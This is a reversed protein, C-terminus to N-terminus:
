LPLSSIAPFANTASLVLTAKEHSMYGKLLGKDILNALLCEIEARDAIAGAVEVVKEVVRIEIRSAKDLQLWVRRMLNRFCLSRCREITLYTGRLVLHQMTQTLVEDFRGLHGSLITDILVGYVAKLNPYKELLSHHPVRGALLRTPILYNLILARNKNIISMNSGTALCRKLAFSLEVDAKAYDENFFALVGLYYKFTVVHAIPYQEIPPLDASAISRLLNTCLNIQGLKFYTRMLLNCVYYAGWKRSQDRSSFRDTACVSFAKNMTRAAEELFTPKQGRAKLNEDGIVASAYLDSNITFIVPLVWRPLSTAAQHLYQAKYNQERFAGDLDYNYFCQLSKLHSAFVDNWPSDLRRTSAELVDVATSRLHQELSRAFEAAPGVRLLRALEHGDEANVADVALRVLEGSRM